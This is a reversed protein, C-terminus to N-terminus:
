KLIFMIVNLILVANTLKSMKQVPQVSASTGFSNM